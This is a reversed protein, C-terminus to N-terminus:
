SLRSDRRLWCSELEPAMRRLVEIAGSATEPLGAEAPEFADFPRRTPVDFDVEYDQDPGVRWLPSGALFFKLCPDSDRYCRVAALPTEPQESSWWGAIRFVADVPTRVVVVGDRHGLEFCMREDLALPYGQPVPAEQARYRRRRMVRQLLEEIIKLDDQSILLAADSPLTM